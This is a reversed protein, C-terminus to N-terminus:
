YKEYLSRILELRSYCDSDENVKKTNVYTSSWRTKLIVVVVLVVSFIDCESFCFFKLLCKWVFM